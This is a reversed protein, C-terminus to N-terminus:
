LATCGLGALDAVGSTVAHVIGDALVDVGVGLLKERGQLL